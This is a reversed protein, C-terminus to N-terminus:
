FHITLVDLEKKTTKQETALLIRAYEALQGDITSHVIIFIAFVAYTKISTASIAILVAHM